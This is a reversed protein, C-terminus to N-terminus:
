QGTAEDSSPGSQVAILANIAPLGVWDLRSDASRDRNDGIVFVHGNPVTQSLTEDMPEADGIENIFYRVDDSLREEYRTVTETEGASNIDVFEGVARREVRIGNIYLRGGAVQVTDGPLGVIRKIWVEKPAGNPHFTVVDGRRPMTAFLRPGVGYLRYNDFVYVEGIVYNPQMSATTVVYRQQLGFILLVVQLLDM